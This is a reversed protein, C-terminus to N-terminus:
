RLPVTYCSILFSESHKAGLLLTTISLVHCVCLCFLSGRMLSPFTELFWLARKKEYTTIIILIKIEKGQSISIILLNFTAVVSIPIHHKNHDHEVLIIVHFDIVKYM